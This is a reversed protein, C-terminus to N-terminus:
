SGDGLLELRRSMIGLMKEYVSMGLLPNRMFYNRLDKSYIYFLTTNGTSRASATRKNNVVLSLEGFFEGADFSSIHEDKKKNKWFIEVSGELIVYIGFSPEGQNFVMEGSSYQRVHGIQFLRQIDRNKLHSFLETKRLISTLPTKTKAFINSWLGNKM